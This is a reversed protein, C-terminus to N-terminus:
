KGFMRKFYNQKEESSLKNFPSPEDKELQIGVINWGQQVLKIAEEINKVSKTEKSM